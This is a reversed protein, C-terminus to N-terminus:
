EHQMLVTGQAGVGRRPDGLGKGRAVHGSQILGRVSQFRACHQELGSKRQQGCPLGSWAGANLRTQVGQWPRTEHLAVTAGAGLREGAESAAVGRAASTLGVAGTVEDAGKPRGEGIAGAEEAGAAASGSCPGYSGM